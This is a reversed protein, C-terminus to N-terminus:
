AMALYPFDKKFERSDGKNAFYIKNFNCGESHGRGTRAGTVKETKFSVRRTAKTSARQLECKRCVYFGKSVKKNSNNNTCWLLERATERVRRFLSRAECKPARSHM